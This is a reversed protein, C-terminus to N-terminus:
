GTACPGDVTNVGDVGFGPGDIERGVLLRGHLLVKVTHLKRAALVLGIGVNTYRVIMNQIYGRFLVEEAACTFVLNNFAFIWWWGPISFEFRIYSSALGLAAISLFLIPLLSWRYGITNDPNAGSRTGIVGQPRISLMSPSALLLAFIILPKDYNFYLTFPVSLQGSVVGDLVLLNSFGPFAHAALGTCPSYMWATM